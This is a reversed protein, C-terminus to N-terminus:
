CPHSAGARSLCPMFPLGQPCQGSRRMLWAGYCIEPGSYTCISACDLIQRTCLCLSTSNDGALSQVAIRGVFRPGASAATRPFPRPAPRPQASAAAPDSREAAPTARTGILSLAALAPVAAAAAKERLQHPGSASHLAATLPLPVRTEASSGMSGQAAAVAGSGGRDAAPASALASARGPETASAPPV